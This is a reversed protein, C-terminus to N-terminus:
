KQQKKIFYFASKQKLASQMSISCLYPQERVCM